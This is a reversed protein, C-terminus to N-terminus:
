LQAFLRADLQFPLPQAAKIKKFLPSVTNLVVNMEGPIIVSPVIFGAFSKDELIQQGLWQSYAINNSWDKELKKVEVTYLQVVAPINFSITALNVMDTKGQAHVFKELVSLSLTQSCYLCAIGPPNWRGGYKKAGLGEKDSIFDKHGIRHVIM